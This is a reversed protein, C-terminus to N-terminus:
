KAGAPSKKLIRKNADNITLKSKAQKGDLHVGSTKEVCPLGYKAWLPSRGGRQELITLAQGALAGMYNDAAHGASIWHSLSQLANCHLPFNWRSFAHRNTVGKKFFGYTQKELVNIIYLQKFDFHIWLQCQFLLASCNYTSLSFATEAALLKLFYEKKQIWFDLRFLCSLGFFLQEYPLSSM